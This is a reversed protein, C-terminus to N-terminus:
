DQITSLGRMGTCLEQCVGCGQVYNKVFTRMGPWWYEEKAQMYTELEGPHGATVHDHFREMIERRIEMNDPIYQRGKYFVAKAKGAEEVTWDKLEESLSGITSRKIQELARTVDEDFTDCESIREQLELDIIRVFLDKNLLVQPEKNEDEGGPNHDPRRSLADSQIMKSGAIHMLKINYASLILSRRAQRDNHRQPKRFYTLNRHDSLVETTFPSGQIYHRWEELARVIGMLERDYIEYRRETPTFTKSLFAVPHRAGNTDKQTLVAGYAFKSADSEIEFPRTMDPMQLVPQETFRQKLTDFAKQADDNWQFKTDKKLL